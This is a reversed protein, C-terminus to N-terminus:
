NDNKVDDLKTDAADEADAGDGDDEASDEADDAPKLNAGALELPVMAGQIYLKDGGPLPNRGEMLRAENPTMSGTAISKAQYNARAMSDGRMLADMDFKVFFTQRERPGLLSFNLRREIRECWPRICHMVFELAQQEINNNTARDLIGIMHQPVRYLRAIDQVGKGQLELFQIDRHNVPVTEITMGEELIGLKHSNEVGGFRKMFWTMINDKAKDSLTQPHRIYQNPTANNEFFRGCYEEALMQTAIPRRGMQVPSYGRLGDFGLGPVHLLDDDFYIREKDELDKIRYFRVGTQKNREIQFRDPTVPLLGSVNNKTDYSHLSIMDGWTLIHAISQEWYEFSTQEENPAVLLLDYLPHNTAPEKGGDSRRRYVILPFSAVTQAIVQVCAYVALCTMASTESVYKSAFSSQSMSAPKYWFDNWPDPPWQAGLKVLVKGILNM